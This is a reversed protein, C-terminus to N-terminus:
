NTPGSSAQSLVVNALHLDQVKGVEAHFGDPPNFHFVEWCKDYDIVLTIVEKGVGQAWYGEVNWNPWRCLSSLGRACKRISRSGITLTTHLACADIHM